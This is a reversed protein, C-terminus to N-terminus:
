RGVQRQSPLATSPPTELPTASPGAPVPAKSSVVIVSEKVIHGVEDTVEMRIETREETPAYYVHGIKLEEKNLSLVQPQRDGDAVILRGERARDIARSKPNWRVNIGEAQALVDLKLAEPSAALDLSPLLYYMGLIVVGATLGFLAAGLMWLTTTSLRVPGEERNRSAPERVPHRDPQRDAERDPEPVAELPIEPTETGEAPEASRESAERKLVEVDFPFNMFSFPTFVDGDWFLFGAICEEASSQIMLVVNTRDPFERQVAALEEDRLTLTDGYETRFYGVTRKEDNPRGMQTLATASWNYRGDTTASPLCVYDEIELTDPFAGERGLLVGGLEARSHDSHQKRYEEIETRLRTILHLPMNIRLPGGPFAWTYFDQQLPAVRYPRAPV